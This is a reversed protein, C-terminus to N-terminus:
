PGLLGCVRNVAVSRADAIFSRPFLFSASTRRASLREIGCYLGYTILMRVDTVTNHNKSAEIDSLVTEFLVFGEIFLHVLYSHILLPWLMVISAKCLFQYASNLSAKFIWGFSVVHHRARSIGLLAVM